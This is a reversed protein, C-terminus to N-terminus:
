SIKGNSWWNNRKLNFYTDFLGKSLKKTAEILMEAEKSTDQGGKSLVRIEALLSHILRANTELGKPDEIPLLDYRQLTRITKWTENLFYIIKEDEWIKEGIKWRLNVLGSSLVRASSLERKIIGLWEGLDDGHLLVIDGKKAPGIAFPKIKSMIDYLFMNARPYSPHEFHPGFLYLCGRGVPVRIGAANGVMTKKATDEEVLYLTKDDFDVYDLLRNEAPAMMSPGGYLPAKFSMDKNGVELSGRVPHFVFGDKYPVIYKYKMRIAEPPRESFNNIPVEAFNLWPMPDDNFIISLYTGACVGIYTGGNKVFQRIKDLGEELLGDAILFPDGGPLVLCDYNSLEGNKIDSEDLFYVENFDLSDFTKVFWIWSYSAGHGIYIAIKLNESDM